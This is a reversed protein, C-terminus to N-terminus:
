NIVVTWNSINSGIKDKFKDGLDQTDAYIINTSVNTGSQLFLQGNITKDTWDVGGIQISTLSTATMLVSGGVTILNEFPSLDISILSTCYQLFASSITTINSLSSLDIKELSSVNYLFNNGVSTVNTFVKLNVKTLNILNSLFQHPIATTSAYSKGFNIEKITNKLFREGNITLNSTPSNSNSFNSLPTNDLEFPHMINDTTIFYSAQTNTGDHLYYNVDFTQVGNPIFISGVEDVYEKTINVAYDTFTAGDLTQRIAQYSSYQPGFGLVPTITLDDDLGSNDFGHLKILGKDVSNERKFLFASVDADTDIDFMNSVDVVLSESPPINNIQEDVYSKNAAHDNNVPNAIGSLITDSGTWTSTNQTSLHLIGPTNFEVLVQENDQNKGVITGINSVNAGGMNLASNGGAIGNFIVEGTLTGGSLPLFKADTQVKTYYDSLDIDTTGLKEFKSEDALWIYEDYSGSENEILYIIGNKGESPLTDVVVAKFGINDSAVILDPLITKLEDISYISGNVTFNVDRASFVAKGILVPSGVTIFSVTDKLFYLYLSGLAAEIVAGDDDILEIYGNDTNCYKM